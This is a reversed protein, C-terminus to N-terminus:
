FPLIDSSFIDEKARIDVPLSIHSDAKVSGHGPFHKATCAMGAQRMGQIYARALTIVNEPSASFARQGIVDSIGNLDLVPAFSLDIDCAILESAMIYASSLALELAKKPSNLALLSGASPLVTFEHKLANYAGVKM